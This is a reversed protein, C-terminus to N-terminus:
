ACVWHSAGAGGRWLRAAIKHHARKDAESNVPMPAGWGLLQYPGSAGSPNYANWNGGSECAVIYYPIAWHTKGPGSYPLYKAQFLRDKRYESFKEARKERYAEIQRQVKEIKICQKHSQWAAKEAWKAPTGDEWRSLAYAGKILAKARSLHLRVTKEDCTAPTADVSPEESGGTPGAFAMTAIAFFALVAAVAGVQKFQYM